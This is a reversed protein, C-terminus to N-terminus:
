FLKVVIFVSRLQEVTILLSLMTSSDLAGSQTRRLVIIIIFIRWDKIPMQKFELSIMVMVSFSM